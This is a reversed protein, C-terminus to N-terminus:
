EQLSKSDIIASKHLKLSPPTSFIAALYMNTTYMNVAITMVHTVNWPIYMYTERPFGKDNTDTICRHAVKPHPTILQGQLRTMNAPRHARGRHLADSMACDTRPDQATWIYFALRMSAYYTMFRLWTITKICLSSLIPDHHYHIFPPLLVKWTNIHSIGSPNTNNDLIFWLLNLTNM